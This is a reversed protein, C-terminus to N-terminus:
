LLNDLFNNLWVNMLYGDATSLPRSQMNPGQCGPTSPYKQHCMSWIKLAKRYKINEVMLNSKVSISDKM